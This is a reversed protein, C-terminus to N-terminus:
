PHEAQWEALLQDCRASSNVLRCAEMDPTLQEFQEPHDKLENFRVGM